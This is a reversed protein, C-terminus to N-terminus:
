FITYVPRSAMDCSLCLYAQFFYLPSCSFETWSQSIHLFVLPIHDLLVQSMIILGKAPLNIQYFFILNKKKFRESIDDSSLIFIQSTYFVYIVCKNAPLTAARRHATVTLLVTSASTSAPLQTLPLGENESETLASIDFDVM